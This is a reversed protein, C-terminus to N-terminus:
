DCLLITFCRNCSGDDLHMLICALIGSRILANISDDVVGEEKFVGLSSGGKFDLAIAYAPGLYVQGDKNVSVRGQAVGVRGHAVKSAEELWHLKRIAGAESRM